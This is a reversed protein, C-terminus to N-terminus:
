HAPAKTSRSPWLPRFSLFPPRPRAGSCTTATSAQSGGPDLALLSVEVTSECYGPPNCTPSAALIGVGYPSGPLARIAWSAPHIGFGAIGSVGGALTTSAYGYVNGSSPPTFIATGFPTPTQALQTLAGSTPDIALAVSVPLKSVRDYYGVYAIRAIKRCKVAIAMIDTGNVIGARGANMVVCNLTADSPQAQVTISYAGGSAIRTAFTFSGNGAIALDDGGNNRLVVGTSSLGAVVGGVAYLPTPSSTGGGGGCSALAIAAIVFLAKLPSSCGAHMDVVRADTVIFPVM